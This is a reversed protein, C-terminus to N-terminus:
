VHEAVICTCTYVPYGFVLRHAVELSQWHEDPVFATRCALASAVRYALLCLFLKWNGVVQGGGEDGGDRERVETEGDPLQGRYRM